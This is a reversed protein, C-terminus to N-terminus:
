RMLEIFTEGQKSTPKVTFTVRNSVISGVRRMLRSLISARQIEGNEAVKGILSRINMDYSVACTVKNIDADNAEVTMNDQLMVLSYDENEFINRGVFQQYILKRIVDSSDTCASMTPSPHSDVAPQSVPPQSDSAPIPFLDPDRIYGHDMLFRKLALPFSVRIKKNEPCQEIPSNVDCIQTPFSDDDARDYTTLMRSWADNGQGVLIKSAVWGALFGHSRWQPDEPSLRAETLRLDQLLRHQFASDSTVDVLREGRLQHIKLPTLSDSYPGFAYLFSQDNSVLEVQGDGTIDEFLYGDDGDLNEGSVVKWNRDPTMTAIKTVTCCHAGQWFYSFVVQKRSSSHDLSVLTATSSPAESPSDDIVMSFVPTGNISGRALPSLQGDGGKIHSLLIHLDGDDLTADVKGDYSLIRTDVPAPKWAVSTFGKGNTLYIDKPLGKSKILGDLTARGSGPQAEIPGQVVGYWGNISGVVFSKAVNYRRALGIAEDLDRSSSVVVWFHDGTLQLSPFGTDSSAAMASGYATLLAAAFINAHM